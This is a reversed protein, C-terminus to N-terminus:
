KFLWKWCDKMTKYYGQLKAYYRFRGLVERPTPRTEGSGPLQGFPQNEVIKLINKHMLITNYNPNVKSEKKSYLRDFYEKYQPILNDWDFNLATNRANTKLSKLLEPNDRFKLIAKKIQSINKPEVLICNENNKAYEIDVDTLIGPLGCSMAELGPLGFGHFLSADVMVDCLSLYHPFDNYSIMGLNLVNEHLVDSVFEGSRQTVVFGVDNEEKLIEKMTQLFFISGRRESSSLFCIVMIKCRKRLNKLEEISPINNSIDQPYFQETAVGVNIVHSEYNDQEKIMKQIWHSVVIKNQIKKYSTKVVGFLKKPDFWGEYDQIFYASQINFKEAIREVFSVTGYETAVLVKTNPPFKEFQSINDYNLPEFLLDLDIGKNGCYAINAHIGSRILGNVIEVVTTIGGVGAVLRPLLFVVDYSPWFSLKQMVPFKTNSNRLYGLENKSNYEALLKKYQKGWRDFFIKLNKELLTNRNKISGEGKHFLYLDDSVVARFGNNIVKFHYDTEEVYAPSFIEDFLGVKNIIERTILLCHGVVTMADPYLKKSNKEIFENMFLFDFGPPMKITLSASNNSLASILGIKTDRKLAAEFKELWGKTVIVDSNLLIVNDSISKKLGVNASKVYGLNTQNTIVDIIDPHKQKFELILNKTLEDSFDDVLIINFNNKSSSSFVSNLCWRLFRPSNHVCIIIDFLKKKM